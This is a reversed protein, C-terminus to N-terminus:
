LAAELIDGTSIMEPGELPVLPQNMDRSREVAM